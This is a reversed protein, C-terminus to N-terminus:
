KIKYVMVGESFDELSLFFISLDLALQSSKMLM